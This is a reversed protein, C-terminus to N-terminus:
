GGQASRLFLFPASRCLHIGEFRADATRGGRCEEAFSAYAMGSALRPRGTSTHRAERASEHPFRLVRPLCCM